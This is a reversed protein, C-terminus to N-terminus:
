VTHVNSYYSQTLSAPASDGANYARLEVYAVMRGYSEIGCPNEGNVRIIM